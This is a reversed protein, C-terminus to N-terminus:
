KYVYWATVLFLGTLVGERLKANPISMIFRPVTLAAGVAALVQTEYSFTPLFMLSIPYITLWLVIRARRSEVIGLKLLSGQLSLSALGTVLLAVAMYIWSYVGTRWLAVTSLLSKTYDQLLGLPDEQFLFYPAALILPTLLGILGAVLTRPSAVRMVFMMVFMFPAFWLGKAWFLSGAGLLAMCWFCSQYPQEHRLSAFLRNCSSIYFMAFVLVPHFCLSPVIGGCLIAYCLGSLNSQTPTFHFRKSTANIMTCCVATVAITLLSATLTGMAVGGFVPRWLGAYLEPQDGAVYREPELLLRGRLAALAVYTLVYGLATNNRFLSYM